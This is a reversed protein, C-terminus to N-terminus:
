AAAQTRLRWKEVPFPISEPKPNTRYWGEIMSIVCDDAIYILRKASAPLPLLLLGAFLLSRFWFRSRM